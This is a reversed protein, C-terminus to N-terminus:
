QEAYKKYLVKSVCEDLILTMLAFGIAMLYQWWPLPVLHMITNFKPLVTALFTAVASIGCAVHMVPNRNFVRYFFDWSRVTYARLMECWVATIFSITRAQTSKRATIDHYGYDAAGLPAKKGNDVKVSDKPRFWGLEDRELANEHENPVKDKEIKALKTKLKEHLEASYPTLNQVKGKAAELVSVMKREDLDFYDINTVWGVYDLKVVYEYSQCFYTFKHPVDNTDKLTVKKCQEHIDHMFVVGTCLYLATLISGIVMAAQFITHPLNGYLWWNRTMIPQKPDRPKTTMVNDDPPERSLAVAPCGDTVFNLFLIQLAEVPPLTRILIALTLYVIEGINTGLLFSVFKQINAYITRGSEISNVITCFNDDLLVMDSAGKAVDTGNIGMAVGIDATKLAPADNVGDGTMATLHGQRKLSEVIAVKDQPQARCFVSVTATYKDVVDDPLYERFHDNNVHMNSCELVGTNEDGLYDFQNFLGIDKAIAAATAKQDGTIMIVRVGAKVCTEIAGKVGFRPPDLSGVCGLLVLPSGGSESANLLWKLREDSDECKGLGEVDGDTLPFIGVLLVRLARSSLEHNANKLADVQANSATGEASAWDVECNDGDRKLTIMRTNFLMDPAGKITAVHTYKTEGNTLKADGFKNEEKLKHVTCMMKRSSNFPVDLAKLLPYDDYTTDDKNLASGIGCKASAVILPCETMNGVANWTNTAEDKEIHTANSNLYAALMTAKVQVATATNNDNGCINEKLTCFYNQSASQQSLQTKFEDTLHEKKFVGGLPNFGMTPYFHAEESDCKGDNGHFIVMTTTTMKGETLTGTKDSCIISCCGLTEVAPLKRINANRRAMDKAGLSLSITVVMPLGEPISSVAFGVALLVIALVRNTDPRTPDEYGTAVAVIIISILVGISILGIVGGLSNLSAQLPTLDSGSSAKKLQMAIHGVQTEMGTTVVIGKASGSVVSTSAFCLNTAFPSHLDEAVLQKKVPESEGTLLAENVKIETVEFLRVDAPVTDGMNLIIVDGPVIDKSDVVQEEGDRIVNTTPSSIAALKELADAASKEMYTAMAANINTILIIFIGEVINGLAISGIAASLLMIVVFNCFQGLYVRWLPPRKTTELINKGYLNCNLNYQANTLGTALDHLGLQEMIEEITATAFRSNGSSPHEQQAKEKAKEVAVSDRIRAVEIIDEANMLNKSLRTAVETEVNDLYTTLSTSALTKSFVRSISHIISTNSPRHEPARADVDDGAVTADISVKCDDQKINIEKDQTHAM